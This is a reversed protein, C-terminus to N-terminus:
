ASKNIAELFPIKLFNVDGYRNRELMEIYQEHTKEYNMDAMYQEEYYMRM